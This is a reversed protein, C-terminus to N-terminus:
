GQLLDMMSGKNIKGTQAQAFAQAKQLVQTQKMIMIEEALDVDTIQSRASAINVYTNSLNRVESSLQNQRSGAESRQTNIDQLAADIVGLAEAAGEQSTIDINELTQGEGGTNEGGEPQYQTTTINSDLLQQGNYTTNQEVTRISAMASTIDSQLAQRSEPSQADSAAQVAKVRIDQLIGSVEGFAGDAIQNMAISDNANRISQGMGRLQSELSDSITMGSADDAAKNIRSGSAIKELSSSLVQSSKRLQINTFFSTSDNITTSM